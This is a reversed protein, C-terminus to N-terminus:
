PQRFFREVQVEGSALSLRLFYAGAPLHGMWLQLQGNLQAHEVITRGHVDVVALRAGDLPRNPLSITLEDTVPNPYLVMITEAAAAGSARALLAGTSPPCTSEGPLITLQAKCSSQNGSDDRAILTVENSGVHDCTFISQSLSLNYTCADGSGNVVEAPLLHYRNERPLAITIDKCALSPPAEDRVEVQTVCSSSNGEGDTITLTVPVTSPRGRRTPRLDACSVSSRSLQWDTIVCAPWSGNDIDAAAITGRGQDDLLVTAPKCRAQLPSSIFASGAKSGRHNDWSAGIIAHDGSISVSEGFHINRGGFVTLQKVEQWGMAGREFIYASSSGGIIAKNGQISVSIGFWREYEIDSATLKQVEQWGTDRREYLYAAGSPEDMYQDQFAGILAYNGSISVSIGYWDDVNGDSATIKQVEQWGMDTREYIYASGSDKGRVDDWLAGVVAYNGSISVNYGFRDETTGSSATLQKVEQWGLDTREFIYAEGRTGVIAYDGDIEVQIGFLDYPTGESATLKQVEQWGLDTRQYIYAAGSNEGRDGKGIAGVIAYNGSISVSYGFWDDAAADSATLKQVEQWGMGTRQYIYASGATDYNDDDAQSGVIAYNGSISVSAGFYDEAAADSATLMSLGSCYQASAVTGLGLWSLLGLLPRLNALSIYRLPLYRFYFPFFRMDMNKTTEKKDAQGFWVQPGVM